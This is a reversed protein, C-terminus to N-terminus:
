QIRENYQQTAYQHLIDWFDSNIRFSTWNIIDIRTNISYKELVVNPANKEGHDVYVSYKENKYQESVDSQRFAKHFTGGLYDYFSEFTQLEKSKSDFAYEVANNLHQNFVEEGLLIIAGKVHVNNDHLAKEKIKTALKLSEIQRNLSAIFFQFASM